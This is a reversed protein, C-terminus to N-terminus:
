DGLSKLKSKWIFVGKVWAYVIVLALIGIFLTIEALDLWGPHENYIVAIPFLFLVDVAFAVFILAYLYYVVGYRIWTPGISEMGCEIAQLTKGHIARTYRPALLHALIMPAVGLGVGGFFFAIIYILDTLSTADM